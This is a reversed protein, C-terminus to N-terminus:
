SGPETEELYVDDDEESCDINKFLLAESRVSKLIRKNTKLSTYNKFSPTELSDCKKILGVMAALIRKFNTVLIRDRNAHERSLCKWIDFVLVREDSEENSQYTTILGLNISLQKFMDFSVLTQSTIKFNGTTLEFIKDFEKNFKQLM